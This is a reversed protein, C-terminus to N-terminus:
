IQIVFNCIIYFEKSIYFLTLKKKYCFLIFITDYLFIIIQETRVCYQSHLVFELM